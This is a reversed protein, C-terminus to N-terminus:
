WCSPYSAFNHYQQKRFYYQLFDCNVVRIKPSNCNAVLKLVFRLQRRYDPSLNRNAVSIKPSIVTHLLLRPSFWLKRSYYSSFRLERSLYPFFQLKRSYDPFIATPSLLKPFFRVKRSWDCSFRLKWLSHSFPLFGIKCFLCKPTM